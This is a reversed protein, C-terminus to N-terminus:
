KQQLQRCMAIIIPLSFILPSIYRIGGGYAGNTPGLIIICLVLVPMILLAMARRNRCATYYGVLFLTTLSYTFPSLLVASIPNSARIREFALAARKLKRPHYFVIGIASFRENLWEMSRESEAISGPPPSSSFYFSEYHNHVTATIATFPHKLALAIWTTLFKYVEKPKAKPKFTAKAPDSLQPNYKDRMTDADLVAQIASLENSSLTDGCVNLIRATQQIPLSLAEKPSGPTVHAYKMLTGLAAFALIATGAILFAKLRLSKLLVLAIFGVGLMIYTGDNRLCVAAIISLYLLISTAVAGKNLRHTESAQKITLYLCTTFLMAVAGYLSDKTTNVVFASLLPSLAYYLVLLIITLSSCDTKEVVVKISYSVISCIVLAQFLIYAFIGANASGLLKIGLKSFAVIIYSHTIPHHNNWFVSQDIQLPLQSAYLGDHLFPFGQAIQMHTDFKIMGPFYIIIIPLYALTLVAFVTSFPHSRLKALLPSCLFRIRTNCHEGVANGISVKELLLYALHSFSFFFIYYSTFLVVLKAAQWSCICFLPSINSTEEFCRGLTAWSSLFIATACAYIHFSKGNGRASLGIIRFVGYLGCLIILSSFEYKFSNPFNYATHIHLDLIFAPMAMCALFFASPKHQLRNIRLKSVILIGVLIALIFVFTPFAM